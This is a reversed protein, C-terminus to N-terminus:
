GVPLGQAVIRLEFDGGWFLQSYINHASGFVTKSYERQDSGGLPVIVMKYDVTSTDHIKEFLFRTSVADTAHIPFKWVVGSGLNSFHDVQFPGNLTGQPRYVEALLLPASLVLWAM